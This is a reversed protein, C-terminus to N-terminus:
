ESYVTLEYESFSSWYQKGDVDFDVKYGSTGYGTQSIIGKRNRKSMISPGNDRSLIGPGYPFICARVNISVKDGCKIGQVKFM